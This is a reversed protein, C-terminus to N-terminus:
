SPLPIRRPKSLWTRGRRRPLCPLSNRTEDMKVVVTKDSTNTISYVAFIQANDASALDFFIQLSDIKLLASIKTTAHVTIAPLSVDTMGAEVVAFESQYTMGM